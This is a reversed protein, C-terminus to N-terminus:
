RAPEKGVADRPVLGILTAPRDNFTCRVRAWTFGEPARDGGLPEVRVNADDQLKEGAQLKALAQEAAWVAARSDALRDSAVRERRVAVTFVTALVALIALGAIADAVM